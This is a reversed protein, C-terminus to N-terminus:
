KYLLVDVVVVFPEVVVVVVVLLWIEIIEIKIMEPAMNILEMRTAMIEQMFLQTHQEHAQQQLGQRGIVSDLVMKLGSFLYIKSTCIGIVSISLALSIMHYAIYMVFVKRSLYFVESLM